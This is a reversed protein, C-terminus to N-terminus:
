LKVERAANVFAAVAAESTDKEVGHGLNLVHHGKAERIATTVAKKINAESGYLVMPDVNGAMLVNMCMFMRM